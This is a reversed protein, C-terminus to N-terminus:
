GGPQAIEAEARPAAGREDPEAAPEVELPQLLQRGVDDRPAELALAAEARPRDADDREFPEAPVLAAQRAIEAEDLEGGREPAPPDLGLLGVDQELWVALPGAERADVEEGPAAAPRTGKCVPLM